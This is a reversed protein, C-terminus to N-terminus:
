AAGKKPYKRGRSCTRCRRETHGHRQLYRTNEPTFEHGWKCHTLHKRWNVDGRRINEANTVAELHDPNCCCRNRCLHDLVLGDPVPGNKYQWSFRHVSVKRGLDDRFRAYGKPALSGIWVWCQGIVVIKDRMRDIAPRTGYNGKRKPKGTRPSIPVAAKGVPVGPVTFSFEMM